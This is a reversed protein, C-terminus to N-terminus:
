LRENQIKPAKGSVVSSDDITRRKYAVGVLWIKFKFNYNEQFLSIQSFQSLKQFILSNSVDFWAFILGFLILPRWYLRLFTKEGGWLEAVGVGLLKMLFSYLLNRIVSYKCKNYKMNLKNVRKVFFSM